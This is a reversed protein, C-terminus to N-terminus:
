KSEALGRKNTQAVCKTRPGNFHPGEFVEVIRPPTKGFHLWFFFGFGQFELSGKAASLITALRVKYHEGLPGM